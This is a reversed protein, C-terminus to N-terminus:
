SDKLLEAAMEAWFFEHLLALKCNMNFSVETLLNKVYLIKTQDSEICTDFSWQLYWTHYISSWLHKGSSRTWFYLDKRWVTINKPDCTDLKRLLKQPALLPASNCVYHPWHSPQWSTKLSSIIKVCSPQHPLSCILLLPLIRSGFRIFKQFLELPPPPRPQLTM